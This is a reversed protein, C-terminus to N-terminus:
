EDDPQSWTSQDEIQQGCRLLGMRTVVDTGRSCEYLVSTAGDPRSIRAVIVVDTLLDGDEHEWTIELPRIADAIDSQAM